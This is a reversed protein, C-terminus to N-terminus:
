RPSPNSSPAAERSATTIILTESSNDGDGASEPNIRQDAAASSSHPVQVVTVSAAATQVWAQQLDEASDRSCTVANVAATASESQQPQQQTSTATSEHSTTTIPQTQISPSTCASSASPPTWADHDVIRSQSPGTAAGDLEETQSKEKAGEGPCTVNKDGDIVAFFDLM